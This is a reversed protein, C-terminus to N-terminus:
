LLKNIDTSIMAVELSILKQKDQQYLNTFLKVYHRSLVTITLHGAESSSHCNITGISEVRWSEIVTNMM